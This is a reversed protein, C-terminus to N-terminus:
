TAKMDQELPFLAFVSSSRVMEYARGEQFRQFVTRESSTNRRWSPYAPILPM